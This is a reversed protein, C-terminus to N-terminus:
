TEVYEELEGRNVPTNGLRGIHIAAAMSGLMAMEWATGGACYTLAVTALLADGAGMTDLPNKNLTEIRYIIQNHDTPENVMLGESGLTMLIMKAQTEKKLKFMLEERSSNEDRLAVRAERETPTIIDFGKFKLVDGIQSSSQSDGILAVGKEKALSIVEKMIRPTIVGYNFDSIVVVDMAPLMIRIELLLRDEFDADIFHEDLRSLRLLKQNEAIIRTKLTTRRSKDFMCLVNGGLQDRVWAGLEDHGVVTLLTCCGGLANIHQSVIGAGGIYRIIEGEKIVLVPAESSKGIATGHNYQDVIIDGIVLVRKGAFGKIVRQLNQKNDM